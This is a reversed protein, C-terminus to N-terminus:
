TPKGDVIDINNEEDEDEDEDNDVWAELDLFQNANACKM